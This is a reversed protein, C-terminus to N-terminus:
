VAGMGGEGLKELLDGTRGVPASRETSYVSANHPITNAPDSPGVITEATANELPSDIVTPASTNAQLTGTLTDPSSQTEHQLERLEIEIAPYAQIWRDVPISEGARQCRAAEERTLAILMNRRLEIPEPLFNAWHQEGMAIAQKLADSSVLVQDEVAVTPQHPANTM